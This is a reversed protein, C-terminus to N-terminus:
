DGSLGELMANASLVRVSQVRGVGSVSLGIGAIPKKGGKTNLAHGVDIRWPLALTPLLSLFVCRTAVKSRLPAVRQFNRMRRMQQCCVWLTIRERIAKGEWVATAPVGFGRGLGWHHTPM